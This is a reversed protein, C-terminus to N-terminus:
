KSLVQVAKGELERAYQEAINKNNFSYALDIDEVFKEKESLYEGNKVVVWKRSKRAIAEGDFKKALFEAQEKDEYLYALNFNDTFRAEATLYKGDKAIYWFDSM